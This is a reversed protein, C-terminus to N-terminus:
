VVLLNDCASLRNAFSVKHNHMLTNCSPLGFELLMDTVRSYKTKIKKYYKVSYQTTSWWQWFNETSLATQQRWTKSVVRFIVYLFRGLQYLSNRWCRGSIGHKHPALLISPLFSDSNDKFTLKKYIEWVSASCTKNSLHGILL